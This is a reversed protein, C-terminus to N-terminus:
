VREEEITVFAVVNDAEDSVSLHITKNKMENSFALIDELQVRPRNTTTYSSKSSFYAINSWTYDGTFGTGMAKVFAEKVAWCKAVYQAKNEVDKYVSYEYSTLLKKVFNDGNRTIKEHMRAVNCIDVGIGYISKQKKNQMNSLKSM